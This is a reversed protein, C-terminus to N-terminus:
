RHTQPWAQQAQAGLSLRCVCWFDKIGESKTMTKEWEALTCTQKGSTTLFACVIPFVAMFTKGDVIVNYGNVLMNTNAHNEKGAAMTINAMLYRTGKDISGTANKQRYGPPM